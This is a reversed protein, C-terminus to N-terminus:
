LQKIDNGEAIPSRWFSFSKSMELLWSVTSGEVMDWSLENLPKFKSPLRNSVNGGDIPNMLDKTMNFVSLFGRIHGGFATMDCSKTEMKAKM